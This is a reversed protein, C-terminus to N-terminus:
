RGSFFELALYYRKWFVPPKKMKNYFWGLFRGWWFNIGFFFSFLVLFSLFIYKIISIIVLTIIVIIPTKNYCTIFFRRAPRKKGAFNEANLDSIKRKIKKLIFELFEPLNQNTAFNSFRAFKNWMTKSYMFSKQIRQRYLRILGRMM